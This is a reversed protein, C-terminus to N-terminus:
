NKYLAIGCLTFKIKNKFPDCDISQMIRIIKLLNKGRSKIVADRIMRHQTDIELVEYGWPNNISNWEMYTSASVTAFHVTKRLNFGKGSLSYDLIIERDDYDRAVQSEM